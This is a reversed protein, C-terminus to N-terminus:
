PICLVHRCWHRGHPLLLCEFLPTACPAPHDGTRIAVACLVVILMSMMSMRRSPCSMSRRGLWVPIRYVFVVADVSRLVQIADLARSSSWVVPGDALLWALLRGDCQVRSGSTAEPTRRQGGAGQAISAVFSCQHRRGHPLSLRGTVNPPPAAPCCWGTSGTSEIM